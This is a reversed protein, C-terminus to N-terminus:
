LIYHALPLITVAQLLRLGTRKEATTLMQLPKITMKLHTVTDSLTCTGATVDKLNTHSPM